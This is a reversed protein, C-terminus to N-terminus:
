RNISLLLSRSVLRYMNLIYTKGSDKPKQVGRASGKAANWLGVLEVQSSPMSPSSYLLPHHPAMPPTEPELPLFPSSMSPSRESRLPTFLSSLPTPASVSRDRRHTYWGQKESGVSSVTDGVGPVYVTSPLPVITSASSKRYTQKPSTDFEPTQPPSTIVPVRQYRHSDTRGFTGQTPPTGSHTVPPIAIEIPEPALQLSKLSGDRSWSRQGQLDPSPRDSFKSGFPSKRSSRTASGNFSPVPSGELFSPVRSPSNNRSQPNPSNGRLSPSNERSDPPTFYGNVLPPSNGRGLKPHFFKSASSPTKPPSDMPSQYYNNTYINDM